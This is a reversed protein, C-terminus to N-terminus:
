EGSLDLESIVSGDSTYARVKTPLPSGDAPSWSQFLLYGDQTITADFEYGAPWTVALRAVDPNFIQGYVAIESDLFNEHYQITTSFDDNDATTHYQFNAVFYERGSPRAIVLRVMREGSIEYGVLVGSFETDRGATQTQLTEITGSDPKDTEFVVDYALAEPSEFTPGVSPSVAFAAVGTLFLGVATLIVICSGILVCGGVFYLTRREM